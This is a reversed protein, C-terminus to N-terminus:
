KEKALYDVDEWCFPLSKALRTPSSTSSSTSSPSSSKKLRKSSPSPLILPLYQQMANWLPDYFIYRYYVFQFSYYIATFLIVFHIAILFADVQTFLIQFCEEPDEYFKISSRGTLYSCIDISPKGNWFGYGHFNPGKLYLQILPMWIIWSYLFIYYNLIHNMILHAQDFSILFLNNLLLLGQSFSSSNSLSNSLSSFNPFSINNIDNSPSSYPSSITIIPTNKNYDSSFPSSSSSSSSSYSSFQQKNLISLSQIEEFRQYRVNIYSLPIQFLILISLILFIPHSIFRIIGYQIQICKKRIYFLCNPIVTM